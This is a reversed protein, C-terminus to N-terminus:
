SSSCACSLTIKILLFWGRKLWSTLSPRLFFRWTVYASEFVPEFDLFPSGLDTSNAVDHVSVLNEYQNVRSCVLIFLGFSSSVGKTDRPCLERLTVALSNWVPPGCHFKLQCCLGFMLSCHSLACYNDQQYYGLCLVGGALTAWGKSTPSPEVFFHLEISVLDPRLLLHRQFPLHAYCLGM